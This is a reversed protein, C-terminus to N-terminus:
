MHSGHDSFSFEHLEKRKAIVAQEVLKKDDSAPIHHNKGKHMVQGRWKQKENNWTVGRIGSTNNIQVTKRSQSVLGQKALVLNSERFDFENQNRFTIFVDKDVTGLILRSLNNKRMDSKYYQATYRNRYKKFTIHVSQILELKEIDIIIEKSVVGKRSPTIMVRVHDKEIIYEYRNSM